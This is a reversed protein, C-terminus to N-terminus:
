SILQRLERRLASALKAPSTKSVIVRACFNFRAFRWLEAAFMPLWEETDSFDKELYLTRVTFIQKKRDAHPDFRAVIRDGWLVPLVFYGYRRKPAPVYCEITYEFDWLRLARDRQIILNDFPSLITVRPKRKRMAGITELTAPQTYYTGRSYGELRVPVVSGEEVMTALTSSITKKRYFIHDRIEKERAIGYATLARNIRWRALEVDSPVRTDVSDPLVRETLDYIRRFQCRERVMLEGRWFLLELALKAPKWNWWDGRTVGPEPLFDKSSLPGEIRIRRLVDPLIDRCKQYRMEEWKGQPTHFMEMRPLYFRYDEIPLYSAAHGWYEFIEYRDAQLTHLMEPAYDRIRNWLTHHHARNVVSITDIQVCGLHSITERLADLGKGKRGALRQRLISLRRAALRSIRRPLM